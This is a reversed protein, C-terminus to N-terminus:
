KDISNMESNDSFSQIFIFKGEEAVLKLVAPYIQDVWGSSEKLEATCRNFQEKKIENWADELQCSKLSKQVVEKAKTFATTMVSLSLM